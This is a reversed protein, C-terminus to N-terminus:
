GDQTGESLYQQAALVALAQWCMAADYVQARVNREGPDEGQMWNVCSREGKLWARAEELDM